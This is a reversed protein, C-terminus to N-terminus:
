SSTASSTAYDYDYDYPDLAGLAAPTIEDTGSTALQVTM